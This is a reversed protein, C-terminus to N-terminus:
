KNEKIQKFVVYASTKDESYEIDNTIEGKNVMEYLIHLVRSSGVNFNRDIDRLSIESKEKLKKDIWKIINDDTKIDADDLMEILKPNEKEINKIQKKMNNEKEVLELTTITKGKEKEKMRKLYGDEELRAVLLILMNDDFGKLENVLEDITKRGNNFIHYLLIVAFDDERIINMSKDINEQNMEMGPLLMFGTSSNYNVLNSDVPFYNVPIKYEDINFKRGSKRQFRPQRDKIMGKVYKVLDENTKGKPKLIKKTKDRREELFAYNNVLNREDKSNGSSM